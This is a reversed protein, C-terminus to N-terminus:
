RKRLPSWNIRRNRLPRNLIGFNKKLSLLYLDKVEEGRMLTALVGSNFAHEYMKLNNLHRDSESLKKGKNPNDIFFEWDEETYLHLNQLKVLLEDSNSVKFHDHIPKEGAPYCLMTLASVDPNKVYNVIKTLFPWYTEPEMKKTNELDTLTEKNKDAFQPLFTRIFGSWLGLHEFLATYLKQFVAPDGGKVKWDFWRQALPLQFAAFGQPILPDIAQCVKTLVPDAKRIEANYNDELNRSNSLRKTYSDTAINMERAYDSHVKGLVKQYRTLLGHLHIVREIEGLNAFYQKYSELHHVTWDPDDWKPWTQQAIVLPILGSVAALPRTSLGSAAVFCGTFVMAVSSRKLDKTSFGYTGLLVALGPFVYHKHPIARWVAGISRIAQM